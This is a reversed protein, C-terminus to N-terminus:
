YLLHTLNALYVKAWFYHFCDDTLIERQELTCALNHIRLAPIGYKGIDMEHVKQGYAVLLAQLLLRNKEDPNDDGQGSSTITDLKEIASAYDPDIVLESIAEVLAPYDIRNNKPLICHRHSPLLLRNYKPVAEMVAARFDGYRSSDQEHEGEHFQMDALRYRICNDSVYLEALRKPNRRYMVELQKTSLM